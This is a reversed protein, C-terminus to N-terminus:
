YGVVLGKSQKSIRVTSQSSNRWNYALANRKSMSGIDRMQRLLKNIEQAITRMDRITRHQRFKVELM